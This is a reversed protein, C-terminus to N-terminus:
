RKKARVTWRQAYQVTRDPFGAIKASKIARQRLKALLSWYPASFEFCFCNCTGKGRISIQKALSSAKRVLILFFHGNKFTELKLTGQCKTFDRRISRCRSLNKFIRFTPIQKNFPLRSKSIERSNRNILFRHNKEHEDIESSKTTTKFKQELICSNQSVYM